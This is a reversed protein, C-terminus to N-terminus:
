CDSMKRKFVLNKVAQKFMEGRHEFNRFMDFSSCGPSFVVKEGKCASDFSTCLAQELSGVRQVPVINRWQRSMRESAEGILVISKVNKKIAEDVVSFDCGKDKGGAILHVNSDFAGVACEISEATTSKSDNYFAVGHTEGVYELRHPLGAFSCLGEAIDEPKVGACLAVAAAASANEYNHRGSLKMESVDDLLVGNCRNLRYFISGNEHFVGDRGNDGSGFCVVNTKLSMEDAWDMLRKDNTNLVLYNDKNLNSAIRKKADYYEEEDSYRDLHNKLLNLVAAVRPRFSDITELQFSSVEAVVIANEQLDPTASIVPLGINGAVVHEQGSSKLVSGLLSVTTSKGSSGTVALFPAKSVRFGLEMESWVPISYRAAKKLIDLDSRVGPSLIILGSDLVKDTHGNAECELHKLGANQLVKQLPEQGCKESIFVSCGRAHLYKAAAIGSRAAGIVTVREPLEIKVNMNNM